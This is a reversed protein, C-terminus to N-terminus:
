CKEPNKQPSPPLRIQGLSKEDEQMWLKHTNEQRDLMCLLRKNRRSFLFLFSHISTFLSLKLNLLTNNIQETSNSNNMVFLLFCLNKPICCTNFLWLTSLLSSNPTLSLPIKWERIKLESIGRYDKVALRVSPLLNLLHVCPEIAQTLTHFVVM